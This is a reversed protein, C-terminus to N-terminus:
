KDLEGLGPIILNKQGPLTQYTVNRSPPRSFRYGKKVTHLQMNKLDGVPM